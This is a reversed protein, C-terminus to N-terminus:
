RRVALGFRSVNSSLAFFGRNISNLITYQVPLVIEYCRDWLHEDATREFDPCVFPDFRFDAGLAGVTGGLFLFSSFFLFLLLLLFDFELTMLSGHVKKIM